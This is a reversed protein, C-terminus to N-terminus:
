ARAEIRERWFLCAGAVAAPIVALHLIPTLTLVAVGAGFALAVLPQRRMQRRQEVFGVNRAGAPYELYEVALLWSGVAFWVAPAALNIGPVLFLALAPLSRSALHWLKALGDALSQAVGSWLPGDTPRFGPDLDALVKEALRDAFPAALVNGVMTFALLSVLVFAVALLPWVLWRLYDHWGGAPLLQDLWLGARSFLLTGATSFLAVNVLLPLVAYRRFGPRGILLLGRFPSAFANLLPTAV